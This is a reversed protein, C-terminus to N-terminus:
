KPNTNESILKQYTLGAGSLKHSLMNRSAEVNDLQRLASYPLDKTSSDYNIYGFFYTSWFPSVFEYNEYNALKALVELFRSDLPQWFSYVDRGYITAQTALNLLNLNRMERDSIKYLWAEAIVLRKNYAKAIDAATIAQELYDIPYIHMDIYDLDTNQALERIYAMDDWTGTGAGILVGSRDLGKLIYRATEAFQYPTQKIGDVMYETTPENAISLYEPHMERIVTEVMQRKGQRYKDLTLGSLDYKLDTFASNLFLNGTAVLMTLKRARCEQALRKYFRVYGDYNPFDPVLLPYDIAIKVGKIGMSQLSDLYVLIGRYYEETLLREGVHSNASLLEAGFIINKKTGDWHSNLYSDFDNLKESLAYYLEEYEIPIAPM